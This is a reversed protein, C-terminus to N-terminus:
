FVQVWLSSLLNTSVSRTSTTPPVLLLWNFPRLSIYTCFTTRHWHPSCIFTIIEIHWVTLLFSKSINKGCLFLNVFNCINWKSQVNNLTYMWQIIDWQHICLLAGSKLYNTVFFFFVPTKSFYTFIFRM